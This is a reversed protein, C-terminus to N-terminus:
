DSTKQSLAAGGLLCILAGVVLYVATVIVFGLNMGSGASVSIFVAGLVATGAAIATQQTTSLIGSGAGAQDPPLSSLIARFVPPIFLGNGAGILFMPVILEYFRVDPWWLRVGAILLILGVMQVGTGVQVTRVGIRGMLKPARMSGLFAGVALPAMSLGSEVASMGNGNQLALPAAFSFGSFVLFGSGLILLGRNVPRIRVLSPPILPTRGRGEMGREYRWLVVGAVVSLLILAWCWLPWGERRGLSLPILLSLIGGGLLVTGVIDMTQGGAAKTNPVQAQTGIMALIGLPVNVLFIPRWDLGAIDAWVLVGGILQGAAASLGGIAGYLGVARTKAGEALSTQITSLGQPLLIAAAVGQVVRAGILFGISPALGCALSAITFSVIGIQLMRRRGYRDGLKGGLVLFIAYAIVYGSVIFQSVSTGTHLTKQISPLAVNVISADIMTLAAAILVTALGLPGMTSQIERPPSKVDVTAM